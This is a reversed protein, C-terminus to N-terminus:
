PLQEIMRRWMSPERKQIADWLKRASETYLKEDRVEKRGPRWHDVLQHGKQALEEMEVDIDLMDADKVVQSERCSRAHYRHLIAPADDFLTGSFTDEIARHEDVSAYRKQIPTLDGTLSEPIDHLLAMKLVMEENVGGEMRGIALALFAVRITHELDSAVDLGFYQRWARQFHRLSGLQYLFDVTATIQDPKKM